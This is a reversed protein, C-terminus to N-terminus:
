DRSNKIVVEFVGRDTSDQCIDGDSVPVSILKSTWYGGPGYLTAYLRRGGIVLAVVGVSSLVFHKAFTMILVALLFSASSIENSGTVGRNFGVNLKVAGDDLHKIDEFQSDPNNSYQVISFHSQPVPSEATDYSFWWGVHGPLTPPISPHDAQHPGLSMETVKRHFALTTFIDGKSFLLEQCCTPVQQM